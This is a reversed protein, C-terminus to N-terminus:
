KQNDLYECLIKACDSIDQNSNIVFSDFIGRDRVLKQQVVKEWGCLENPSAIYEKSMCLAFGAFMDLIEVKLDDDLELLAIKLIEYSPLAAAAMNVGQHCISCWLQHTADLAISKDSCFINKLYYPVTNRASGYATYYQSWDIENIRDVIANNLLAICIKPKLLASEKNEDVKIVNKKRFLAFLGM